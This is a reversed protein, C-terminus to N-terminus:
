HLGTLRRVPKLTGRDVIDVGIGQVSALLYPGRGLVQWVWDDFACCGLQEWAGEGAGDAGGGGSARGWVRCTHDWSGSYILGDLTDLSVM